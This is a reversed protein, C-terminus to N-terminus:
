RALLGCPSASFPPCRSPWRAARAAPKKRQRGPLMRGQPACRMGRCRAGEVEWGASQKSLAGGWSCSSLLLRLIRPVRAWSTSYGQLRAMSNLSCDPSGLPPPVLQQSRAQGGPQGMPCSGQGAATLSTLSRSGCPIHARSVQADRGCVDLQRQRGGDQLRHHPQRLFDDLGDGLHSEVQAPGPPSQATGRVRRQQWVRQQCRHSDARSGHARCGLDSAGSIAHVAKSRRHVNSRNAMRCASLPGAQLKM